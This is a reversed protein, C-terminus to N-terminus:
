DEDENDDGAVEQNQKAFTEMLSQLLRDDREYVARPEMKVHLDGEKHVKIANRIAVIAEQLLAIGNEKHLSTTMMVYTPPAVLKIKIPMERTSLAEAARLAIKIADIGERSFCTVELDARIKIAQPTLRRRINQQM